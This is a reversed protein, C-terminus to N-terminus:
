SGGDSWRGDAARYCGSRSVSSADRTSLTCRAMEGLAKYCPWLVRTPRGQMRGMRLWTNTWTNYHLLPLRLRCLWDVCVCVCAHMSLLVCVCVFGKERERKVTGVVVVSQDSAREGAM